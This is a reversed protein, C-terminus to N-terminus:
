SLNLRDGQGGSLAACIPLDGRGGSAAPPQPAAGVQWHASRVPEHENREVLYGDSGGSFIM